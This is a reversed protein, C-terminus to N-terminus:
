DPLAAGKQRSRGKRSNDKPPMGKEFDYKKRLQNLLDRAWPCGKSGRGPAMHYLIWPSHRGQKDRGCYAISLKKRCCPCTVRGDHPIIGVDLLKHQVEPLVDGIRVHPNPPLPQRPRASRLPPRPSPTPLPSPSRHSPAAAAAGAGGGFAAASCGSVAWHGAVFSDHCGSRDTLDGARSAM